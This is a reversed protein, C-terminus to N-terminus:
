TMLFVRLFMCVFSEKQKNNIALIDSFMEHLINVSSMWTSTTLISKVQHSAVRFILPLRHDLGWERKLM